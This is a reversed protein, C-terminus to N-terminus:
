EIDPKRMHASFDAADKQGITFRCLPAGRDELSIEYVRRDSYEIWHGRVSIERATDLRVITFTGEKSM